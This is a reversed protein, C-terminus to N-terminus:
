IEYIFFKRGVTIKLMKCSRIMKSKRQDNQDSSENKDM